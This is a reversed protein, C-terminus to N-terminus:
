NKAESAVKLGFSIVYNISNQDLTVNYEVVDLLIVYDTILLTSTNLFIPM